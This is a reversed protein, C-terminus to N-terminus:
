WANKLILTINDPNDAAWSQEEEAKGAFKCTNKHNKLTAVQAFVKKCFECSFPKEGTHSRM